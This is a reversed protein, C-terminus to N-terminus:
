RPNIETRKQAQGHRPCFQDVQAFSDVEGGTRFQRKAVRDDGSECGMLAAHGDAFDTLKEVRRPFKGYRQTFIKVAGTDGAAM